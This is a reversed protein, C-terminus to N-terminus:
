EGYYAQVAEWAIGQLFKATEADLGAVYPNGVPTKGWLAAYFTCAALYTGAVNPHQKDEAHLVLDPRAKLSREFALGAPVVLAGAANGVGEYGEALKATMEPRGRYAWTMFFATQAGIADIRRDYAAAHEKFSANGRDGEIAETSHGQLIVVDWKRFKLAQGLAQDHEELRGASITHSKFTMAKEAAPDTLRWMFRLHTHLSNNAYSFSNGIFLINKPADIRTVQPRAAAPVAALALLFALCHAIRM